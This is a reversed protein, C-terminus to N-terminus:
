VKSLRSLSYGKDKAWQPDTEIRSHCERCVALFYRKDTLLKGVRGKKHHIDTARKGCVECFAHSNMYRIRERDYVSLEKSRSKSVKKIRKKSRKLRMKPENEKNYCETCMGYGFIYKEKLCRRCIKKKRQIM